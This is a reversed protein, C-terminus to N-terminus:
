ISIGRQQPASRQKRCAEKVEKPIDPHWEAMGCDYFIVRDEPMPVLWLIFAWFATAIIAGIILDKM